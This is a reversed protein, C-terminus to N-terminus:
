TVFLGHEAYVKDFAAKSNVAYRKAEQFHEDKLMTGVHILYDKIMNDLKVYDVVERSPEMYSGGSRIRNMLRNTRISFIRDDPVWIGLKRVAALHSMIQPRAQETDYKMDRLKNGLNLM